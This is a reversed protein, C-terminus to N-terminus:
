AMYGLFEPEHPRDWMYIGAIEPLGLKDIKSKWLQVSKVQLEHWSVKEGRELRIALQRDVLVLRTDSGISRKLNGACAARTFDHGERTEFGRDRSEPKPIALSPYSKLDHWLSGFLLRAEAASTRQSMGLQVKECRRFEHEKWKTARPTKGLRGARSAARFRGDRTSTQLCRIRRFTKTSRM